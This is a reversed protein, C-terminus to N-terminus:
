LNGTLKGGVIAAICIIVIVIVAIAGGAIVLAVTGKIAGIGAKIAATISKLIM